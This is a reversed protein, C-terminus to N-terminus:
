KKEKKIGKFTEIGDMKKLCADMLVADISESEIIRIAKEGSSATLASYGEEELIDGLTKALDQNDDVILITRSM